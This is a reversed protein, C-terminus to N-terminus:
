ISFGFNTYKPPIEHTVMKMTGSNMKIVMLYVNEFISDGSLPLVIKYM